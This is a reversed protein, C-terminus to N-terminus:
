ERMRAIYNELTADDSAWATHYQRIWSQVVTLGGAKLAVYNTRGSKKRLILGAEELTRIHKHIAPLSLDHNGLVAYRGLPAPIQGLAKALTEIYRAHLSVFDGGLLLVDPQLDHLARCAASIAQPHTTPGAHFDSAFAIRLPPLAATPAPLTLQCDDILLNAQWGLKHARSAMWGNGSILALIHETLQRFRTYDTARHTTTM